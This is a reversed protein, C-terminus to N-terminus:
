DARRTLLKATLSQSVLNIGIFPVRVPNPLVGKSQRDRVSTALFHFGNVTAQILFGGPRWHVFKRISEAARKDRCKKVTKMLGDPINKLASQMKDTSIITRHKWVQYPTELRLAARARGMSVCDTDGSVASTGATRATSPPRQVLPRAVLTCTFPPLLDPRCPRPSKLILEMCSIFNDYAVDLFVEPKAQSALRVQHRGYPM